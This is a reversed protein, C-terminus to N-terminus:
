LSEQLEAYKAQLADWAQQLEVSAKDWAVGGAARAEEMRVALAARQEDLEVVAREFKERAADSMEALKAASAERFTAFEAQFDDMRDDWVALQEQLFEETAQAANRLEEKARDLAESKGCSAALASILCVPVLFLGRQM